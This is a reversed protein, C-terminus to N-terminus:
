ANLWADPHTLRELYARTTENVAFPGPFEEVQPVLQGHLASAVEHYAKPTVLANIDGTTPLDGARILLGQQLPLVSISKDDWTRGGVGDLGPITGILPEGILTLWNTGPLGLFAERGMAEPLQVDLGIFRRALTHAHQFGEPQTQPNIGVAYGGVGSLFPATNGVELALQLLDSPEADPSLTFQLVGAHGFRVGDVERYYFEETPADVRDALRFTFQHRPRRLEDNCLQEVIGDINAPSIRHWQDMRSTTFWHHSRTGLLRLYARLLDAALGRAYTVPKTTYMTLHQVVRAVVVDPDSVLIIPDVLIPSLSTM